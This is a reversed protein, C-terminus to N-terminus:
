WPSPTGSVQGLMKGLRRDARKCFSRVSDVYREVDSQTAQALVDGHAINNRKDVLEQIGLRLRSRTVQKRTVETFIDEIGWYRYYRVLNEPKPAKMWALLRSHNLNGSLGANWLWADSTIFAELKEARREWAVESLEDVPQKTHLLRMTQPLQGGQVGHSNVYSIAEENVAYFYREFHASLLVVQARALARALRLTSPTAARSSRDARRLDSIEKVASQLSGLAVSPM